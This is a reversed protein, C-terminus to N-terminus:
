RRSTSGVPRRVVGSVAPTRRGTVRDAVERATGPRRGAPHTGPRASPRLLVAGVSASLVVAVLLAV